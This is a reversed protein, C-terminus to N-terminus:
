DGTPEEATLAPQVRRRLKKLQGSRVLLLLVLADLVAAAAASVPHFGNGAGAEHLSMAGRPGKGTPAALVEADGTTTSTGSAATTAAASKASVRAGAGALGSTNTFLGPLPAIKRYLPDPDGLWSGLVSQFVSRLDTTMELNDAPAAVSGMNPHDGHLGAVLATRAGPAPPPGVLVVPAAAGHDTGAVGVGGAQGIRRGFESVIVVLTRSAVAPNLPGVGAVPEGRATGLWFTELAADLQGLLNEHVALQNAHTDYGSQSVFACEVGLNQELLVRATLLADGIASGTAPPATTRRLDDVIAVTQAGMRGAAHRLPDAPRAVGFRALAAHRPEYVSDTGDGFKMAAISTMAAAARKQGTLMLPIRPGLAVGRLEGDAVGARDLHRGIWGSGPAREPEGSHWIDTSTFHSYNHKPYDVGQVVAVRGERYFRHLTTLRRNLGLMQDTDGALDLALSDGPQYALAPRVKRYVSYRASGAVDGRPIVYNLGDNGGDLFIMVLRNRTATAPDVPAQGFAAGARGVIPALITAGALGGSRALFQRRTLSM